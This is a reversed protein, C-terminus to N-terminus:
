ARRNSKRKPKDIIGSGKKKPENTKFPRSLKDPFFELEVEERKGV